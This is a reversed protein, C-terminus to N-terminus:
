QQSHPLLLPPQQNRHYCDNDISASASPPPPSPMKAAVKFASSPIIAAADFVAALNVVIVVMAVVMTLWLQWLQWHWQTMTGKDWQRMQQCCGSDVFVVMAQVARSQRKWQHHGGNGGHIVFMIAPKQCDNDDVTHCHCHHNDICCYSNNDVAAAIPNFEYRQHRCRLSHNRNIAAGVTTDKGGGGMIIVAMRAGRARARAFLLKPEM